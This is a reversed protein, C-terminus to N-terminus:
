DLMDRRQRLQEIYRKKVQIQKEDSNDYNDQSQAYDQNEDMNNAAALMEEKEKIKEHVTKLIKIGGLKSFEAQKGSITVSLKEIDKILVLNENMVGNNDEKHLAKEKELRQKLARVSNDLFKFQAEYEKKIDGDEVVNKPQSEQM